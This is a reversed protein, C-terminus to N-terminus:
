GCTTLASKQATPKRSSAFFVCRGLRRSAGNGKAFAALARAESLAAPCSRTAGQRGGLIAEVFLRYEVYPRAQPSITGEGTVEIRM